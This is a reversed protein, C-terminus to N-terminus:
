RTCSCPIPMGTRPLDAQSPGPAHQLTSTRGNRPRPRAVGAPCPLAIILRVLDRSSPELADAAEWLQALQPVTLYDVRAAVAKPRRAKALSLCRNAPVIGEDLAWDFFRSLAGFRHRATAARDGCERLMARLDAVNLDSAPRDGCAVSAVAARAHALDAAVHRYSLMGSGRLKPRKPLAKAYEDLLRDLTRGRQQAATTIKAKREAAPDRGSKNHGKYLGAAARADDPSHTEPNGITISRSSFRKGTVPDTGRPKYGYVWAMTGANVVLTLGRCGAIGSLSEATRKV